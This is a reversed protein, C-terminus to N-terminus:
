YAGVKKDIHRTFLLKEALNDTIRDIHSEKIGILNAFMRITERGTLQEILADFQPCYGLNKYVDTLNKRVSNKCLFIDGNTIPIDGTIMKFLTTKGAGNVGLLGFTEGKPVGLSLKKVATFKGNYVKRVNRLVLNDTKFVDSLSTGSIREGEKIVDEDDPEDDKSASDLKMYNNNRFLAAIKAFIHNEICFVWVFFVIGFCFLSLLNKGIGSVEWAYFSEQFKRCCIFNKDLQCMSELNFNGCVDKLDHHVTIQLIGMGLAYNPVFIFVDHLTTALDILGLEPNELALVMVMAALGSASNLLTMRAFGSAPITFVFSFLAMMSIMCWGHVFCLILFWMMVELNHFQQINMMILILLMLVCPLMYNVIDILVSGAYFIPTKLGAVFQLHKAGIMREHVPFIIFAAGMVGLVFEITWGCFFGLTFVNGAQKISDVDSYDFPHNVVSIEKQVGFARLVGNSIFNLAVPPNHFPQNNFFGVFNTVVGKSTNKTTQELGIMIKSDAYRLNSTAKELFINSLSGNAFNEMDYKSSVFDKYGECIKNGVECNTLTVTRGIFEYRDLSARFPMPTTLGPLSKFCMMALTLAAVPIFIQLTALGPNRLLFFIKKVFITKLQQRTLELGEYRPGDAEFTKGLMPTEPNDMDLTKSDGKHHKRADDVGEDEHIKGARMFVEEMTTNGVGFSSIGLLDMHKELDDFLAAFKSSEDDPLSYSLEAGIDDKIQISDIKNQLFKTIQGPVCEPKKVIILNHFGGYKKKLFLSRGCCRVNGESTPEDLLVAKSGACFAIGVSLKRKMGGSLTHAQAHRKSEFGLIEIMRDAEQDAKSASYGKLLSFFKIHEEVTLEDFLVNYQPCLGLSGRVATMDKCIDFGNVIATGSTPTVLGTLMSMTTTKGAGNHGLLATVQNEFFKLELNKVAVNNRFVKRMGKIHIGANLHPPDSEFFETKSKMDILEEELLPEQQVGDTWYWKTFPFYWPLPVGYKGPWVLEIYFGAVMCVGANVLMMVMSDFICFSDDPTVGDMINEWQIGKGSGEFMAFIYCAYSAPINGLLFCSAYKWVRTMMNIRPFILAFPIFNIGWIFGATTAAANATAFLASMLFSFGIVTISHCMLVTMILFSDTETLISRQGSLKLKVLMLLLASALGLLVFAKVFWATWHLWNPLGMIKMYEKLRCEKEHVISKTISMVPYLYAFCLFYCFWVQLASTFKDETYAPYPFRQMQVNYQDYDERETENLFTKIVSREIANQLYLFGEEYYGPFGGDNKGSRPGPNTFIPYLTETFWSPKLFM